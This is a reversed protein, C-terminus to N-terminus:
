VRDPICAPHIRGQVDTQQRHQAIIHHLPCAQPLLDGHTRVVLHLQMCVTLVGQVLDPGM